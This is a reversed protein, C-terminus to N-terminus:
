GHTVERLISKATKTVHMKIGLVNYRKSFARALTKIDGYAPTVKQEGRVKKVRVRSGDIYVVQSWKHGQKIIAPRFGGDIFTRGSILM